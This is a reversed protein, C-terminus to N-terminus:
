RGIMKWKQPEWYEGSEDVGKIWKQIAMPTEGECIVVDEGIHIFQSSSAYKIAGNLTGFYTPNEGNNLYLGKITFITM